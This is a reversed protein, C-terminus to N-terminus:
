IKIGKYYLDFIVREVKVTGIRYNDGFIAVGFLQSRTISSKCVTKLKGHHSVTDGPKIESIHVMEIKM